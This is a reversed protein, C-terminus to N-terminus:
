NQRARWQQFAKEIAKLTDLAGNERSFQQGRQLGRHVLEQWLVDDVVVRHIAAAMEQVDLPNVLVGADGVVEPIPTCNSAVVPVGCQMAEILPKGFTEMLSPFVMVRAGQYLGPMDETPVFGLFRTRSLVGESEALAVLRAQAGDQDRGIIVLERDLGNNKILHAFSKILTEPNKYPYLTSVFLIYGFKLGYRKLIIATDQPLAPKFIDYIAEPIVSIKKESVQMLQCLQDRTADTNAIIWDAKQASGRFALRRYLARPWGLLGPTFYHHLTNIKLVRCYNGILPCVNTSFLVDINHQRMRLPLLSQQIGIRLVIHENSVHCNLMQLNPRLLDRFQHQNRSSVILFFSHQPAIRPLAEALNKLYDIASSPAEPHEFLTDIAIRM